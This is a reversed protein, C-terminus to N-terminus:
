NILSHSTLLLEDHLVAGKSKIKGAPFVTTFAIDAGAVTFTGTGVGDHSDKFWDVIEKAEGAASVQWVNGNEFFRLFEYYDHGDSQSILPSQYLGDFRLSPGSSEIPTNCGPLVCLCTVILLVKSM